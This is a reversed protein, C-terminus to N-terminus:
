GPPRGIHPPECKQVFVDGGLDSAFRPRQGKGAFGKMDIGMSKIIQVGSEATSDIKGRWGRKRRFPFRNIPERKIRIGKLDKWFKVFKVVKCM